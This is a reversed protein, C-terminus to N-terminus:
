HRKSGPTGDPSRKTGQRGGAGFRGPVSDGFFLRLEEVREGTARLIVACRAKVRRAFLELEFVEADGGPFSALIRHRLGVLSGFIEGARVLVEETLYPALAAFDPGAIARRIEAAQPARTGM